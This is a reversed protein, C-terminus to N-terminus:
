AQTRPVANNSSDTFLRHPTDKAIIGSDVPEQVIYKDNASNWTASSNLVSTSARLVGSIEDLL